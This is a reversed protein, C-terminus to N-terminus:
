SQGKDSKKMYYEALDPYDKLAEEGTRSLRYLGKRVREFWGYFNKYLISTTKDGTGLARLQKPSSAGLEKLCCAIHIAKERYATILKKGSSGGVNYDGHRENIEQIMRKRKKQNIQKSKAMDFPLPHFKIEAKPAKGTFSVLILGLGLRRLLYCKDKWERSFLKKGPKPIAVYVLDAARQRKTAQILLKINLHRKLEVVILDDGKVATVDCDNVESNVTYELKTFCEYVPQYLDTEAIKKVDNESM